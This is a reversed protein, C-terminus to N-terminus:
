PYSRYFCTLVLYICNYILCVMKKKTLPLLPRLFHLIFSYFLVIKKNFAAQIFLQPHKSLALSNKNQGKLTETYFPTSKWSSDMQFNDNM